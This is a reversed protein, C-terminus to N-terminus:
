RGPVHISSPSVRFEMPHCSALMHSHSWKMQAVNHLQQIRMPLRNKSPRRGGPPSDGEFEAAELDANPIPLCAMYELAAATARDRIFPVFLPEVTDADSTYRTPRQQGVLKLHYGAIPGWQYSSFVVYPGGVLYEIRWQHMPVVDDYLGTTGETLIAEIYAWNVPVLYNYTDAVMLTTADEVIPTLWGYGILDDVAQNILILLQESSVQRMTPDTALLAIEKKLTAVNM